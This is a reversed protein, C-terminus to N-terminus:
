RGLHRFPLFNPQSLEKGGLRRFNRVVHTRETEGRLMGPHGEPRGYVGLDESHCM